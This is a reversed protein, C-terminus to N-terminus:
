ERKVKEMNNMNRKMGKGFHLIRIYTTQGLDTYNERKSIM